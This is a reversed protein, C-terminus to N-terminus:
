VALPSPPARSDRRSIPTQSGSAGTTGSTTALSQAGAKKSTIASILVTITPGGIGLLKGFTVKKGNCKYPWALLPVERSKEGAVFQM